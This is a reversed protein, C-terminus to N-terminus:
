RPNFSLAYREVYVLIALLVLFVLLKDHNGSAIDAYWFGICTYNSPGKYPFGYPWKYYKVAM